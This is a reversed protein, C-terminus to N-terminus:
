LIMEKEKQFISVSWELLFVFKIIKTTKIKKVLLDTFFIVNNPLIKLCFKIHLFPYKEEGLDQLSKLFSDASSYTRYDSRISPCVGNTPMNLNIQM